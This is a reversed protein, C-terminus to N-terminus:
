GGPRRGKRKRKRGGAGLAGTWMVVTNDQYGIWISNGGLGGGSNKASSWGVGVGVDVAGAAGSLKVRADKQGQLVQRRLRKRALGTASESSGNITM